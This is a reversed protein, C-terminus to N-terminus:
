KKLGRFEKHHKWVGVGKWEIFGFSALAVLDSSVGKLVGNSHGNDKLCNRIETATFYEDTRIRMTELFELVDAQSM